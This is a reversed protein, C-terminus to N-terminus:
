VLNKINQIKDIIEDRISYRKLELINQIINPHMNPNIYECGMNELRYREGSKFELKCLQYFFDDQDINDVSKKLKEYEELFEKKNFTSNRFIVMHNELKAITNYMFLRSYHFIPAPPYAYRVNSYEEYFDSLNMKFLMYNILRPVNNILKRVLGNDVLGLTWGDSIVKAKKIKAIRLRFQEGLLFKGWVEYYPIKFGDYNPYISFINRFFKFSAEPIIENAQIYFVFDENNEKNKIFDLLDNSIDRIIEGKLTNFYKFNWKKYLIYINKNKSIKKLYKETGDNSGDIIYLKNCVNLASYIAEMFPYGQSLTNYTPMFGIIKHSNQM